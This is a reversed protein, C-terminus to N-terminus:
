FTFGEKRFTEPTPEAKNVVVVQFTPRFSNTAL